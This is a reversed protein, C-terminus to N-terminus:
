AAARLLAEFGAVADSTAAAVFADIDLQPGELEAMLAGCRPCREIPGLLRVTMKCGMRICRYTSRSPQDSFTPKMTQEKTDDEEHTWGM